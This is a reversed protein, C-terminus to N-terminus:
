FPIDDGEFQPRQIQQQEVPEISDAWCSFQPKDNFTKVTVRGTVKFSDGKSIVFNDPMATKSGVIIDIFLNTWTNTKKDKFGIACPVVDGWNFNKVDMTVKCRVSHLMMGWLENGM